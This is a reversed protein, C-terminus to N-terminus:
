NQIITLVGAAVLAHSRIPMDAECRSSRERGADIRCTHAWLPLDLDVDFRPLAAFASWCNCPDM